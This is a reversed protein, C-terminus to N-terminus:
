SCPEPQQAKMLLNFLEWKSGSFLLRGNEYIDVNISEGAKVEIRDESQRLFITTSDVNEKYQPQRGTTRTKVQLKQM